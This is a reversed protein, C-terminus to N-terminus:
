VTFFISAVIWATGSCSKHKTFVHIHFTLCSGNGFSLYVGISDNWKEVSYSPSREVSEAEEQIFRVLFFLCVVGHGISGYTPSRFVRQTFKFNKKSQNSHYLFINRLHTKKFDATGGGGSMNKVM